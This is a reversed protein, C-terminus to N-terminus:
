KKIYKKFKGDIILPTGKTLVKKRIRDVWTYSIMRSVFDFDLEIAHKSVERYKGITHHPIDVGSERAANLAAEM